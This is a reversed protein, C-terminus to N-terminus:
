VTPHKAPSIKVWFNQRTPRRRAQFLSKLQTIMNRPFPEDRWWFYKSLRGDKSKPDTSLRTLNPWPISKWNKENEDPRDFRITICGDCPSLKKIFFREMGDRCLYARKLDTFTFVFDDSWAQYEYPLRIRNKVATMEDM